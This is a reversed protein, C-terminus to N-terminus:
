ESYSEPLKFGKRKAISIIRRKISAQKSKPARGILRAAADVEEQTRIPYKKAEPWAYDEAPIEDREKKSIYAEAYYDYRDIKGEDILEAVAQEFEEESIDESKSMEQKFKTYGMEAVGQKVAKKMSDPGTYCHGSNGFKHGSKGGSTCKM